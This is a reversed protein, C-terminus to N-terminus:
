DKLVDPLEARHFADFPESEDHEAMPWMRGGLSGAGDVRMLEGSVFAAAPSLLFCVAASVESETGLRKLPVSRALYPILARAAGEYSDLGSSAIWGPAVANVRVGSKAWEVAATRTLNAMGARAAGSHAMGPMGNWMDALINVIAGGHASMSQRYVERMMLFGGTLNTRVVAEFGKPSIEELPSPFQGGANNFLGDIRDFREVINTILAAVGEADRIDCSAVEARGGDEVIEAATRELAALKRGVLFVRAGLSALEHACCRGIGTGGGTVVITQDAFLDARFVSQYSM